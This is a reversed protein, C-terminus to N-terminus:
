PKLSVGRGWDVERVDVFSGTPQELLNPLAALVRKAAALPEQMASTSAARRMKVIAPFREGGPTTLLQDMMPTRVLGPAITSFHIGPNESSYVKLLLNLSAKSLSYAGMGASGNRSAGSSIGIVQEMSKGSILLHDIIAKNAFVNVAMVEKMVNVPVEPLHGVVGKIGANLIVLDVNAINSLLLDLAQTIESFVRLDCKAFNFVDSNSIEEPKTRGLAYVSGGNEIVTKAFGLGGSVGTILVNKDTFDM